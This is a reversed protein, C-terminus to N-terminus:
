QHFLENIVDSQVTHRISKHHRGTTVIRSLAESVREDLLSYVKFIYTKGGALGAVNYYNRHTTRETPTDGDDIPYPRFMIRFRDSTSFEEFNFIHLRFIKVDNGTDGSTIETM